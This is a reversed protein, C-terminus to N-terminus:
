HLVPPCLRADRRRTQQHEQQPCSYAGGPVAPGITLLPHMGQLMGDPLRFLIVNFLEVANVPQLPLQVATRFFLQVVQVQRDVFFVGGELAVRGMGVGFFQFFSGQLRGIGAPRGVGPSLDAEYQERRAHELFREVKQVLNIEPL